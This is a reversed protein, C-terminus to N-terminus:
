GAYISWTWVEEDTLGVWPPPSTYLPVAQQGVQIDTPNDTVYASRGDQTYVMWAAPEQKPKQDTM